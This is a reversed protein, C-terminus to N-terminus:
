GWSSRISRTPSIPRTASRAYYATRFWEVGQTIPSWSLIEQAREPLSTPVFLIGSTMYALITFVVSVLVWAPVMATIVANLMGYGMALVWM